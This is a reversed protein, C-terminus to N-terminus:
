EAAARFKFDEVWQVESDRFFREFAGALSPLLVGRESTLTTDRGEGPAGLVLDTDYGARQAMAVAFDYWSVSGPNTMHWLGSAHDILLNLVEHVLDPVYTPSVRDAGAEFTQGSGLRNLVAWAFNYRDWPGFFASTRVVLAREHLALVRREAEAKSAGYVTLPSIPDTEGYPRGSLGDFVLDSSFTVLPIDLEACAQALVAAGEANEQFCRDPEGEAEAVRVYGATNIVAWPRHDALTDRVSMRDAINMDARSTLVHDLGRLNCIRSFARGLTGTGGTILLQRPSGVLRCAKSRRTPSRYFRTDRKWWGARDLVPHDYAGNRALAQTAQALATPRPESGRVDFPGPEYHGHNQTLLSSWDVTGFMTWVTVARIDAGEQRLAQAAQWVEMLWRIQEDRSSGHHAETVAIPRRYREWTERLRALPGLERAELPMRVAEADAYCHRGNGGRHHDPYQDLREDLYRESTLYHNIGIIDPAADAELFLDLDRESIGHDLFIRWWPHHRDVMGCLLDFTLWRRQNEHEAQYALKPTSFTKGLDDTQVLGADPRVRRIARMSLVTAKCQNVLCQLFPGYGTGHPYWHGYLGSFRATTLPENVPTYLDLHPYREAVRGAHRALLEPFGPDLMNTYRPGSGHHCLGAIPRIDLSRLHELREDHWSFDAEHPTAPSITEWLVPYRLTRIGLAAIRDLDDLREHHGTEVVQDRFTDGIRAVTCELGGWLELPQKM